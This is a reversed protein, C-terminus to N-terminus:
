KGVKYKDRIQDIEFLYFYGNHNASAPGEERRLVRGVLLDIYHECRYETGGVWNDARPM